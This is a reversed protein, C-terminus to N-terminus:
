VGGASKQSPALFPLDFPSELDVVKADVAGAGPGADTSAGDTSVAHADDDLPWRTLRYTKDSVIQLEFHFGDATWSRGTLPAVRKKGRARQRRERQAADMRRARDPNLIQEHMSPNASASAVSDALPRVDTAGKARLHDMRAVAAAAFAALVEPEAWGNDPPPVRYLMQMEGHDDPIEPDRMIPVGALEDLAPFVNAMRWLYEGQVYLPAWAFWANIVTEPAQMAGVSIRKKLRRHKRMSMVGARSLQRVTESPSLTSNSLIMLAERV